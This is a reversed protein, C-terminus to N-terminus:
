SSIRQFGQFTSSCSSPVGLFKLYLNILLGNKRNIIIEVATNQIVYKINRDVNESLKLNRNNKWNKLPGPKM